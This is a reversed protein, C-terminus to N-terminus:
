SILRIIIPNLLFPSLVHCAFFMVFPVVTYKTPNGGVFFVVFIWALLMVLMALFMGLYRQFIARLERWSDSSDKLEKTTTGWTMRLGLFFKSVAVFLHWPLGGWFLAMLPIMKVEKWFFTWFNATNEPSLRSKCVATCFTGFGAFIVITTLLIDLASVVKLDKATDPFFVWLIISFWLGWVGFAMAFYSGLYSTMSIKSWWPINKSFLFKRYLPTLPGSIFWKIFPNFMMECAGYAYKQLRLIEDYNTLSIGEKFEPGTHTVYRGIFGFQQLRFSLDFDESVHRESWYCTYGQEEEQEPTNPNATSNKKKKFDPDKFSVKEMSSFRLFVNHGMLPALDGGSTSFRVGLQYINDTFDGILEEWFNHQRRMATTLCQVYSVNEDNFEGMAKYICDEPVETDSDVLFIMEGISIDGGAFFEGGRRQNENLIAQELTINSKLCEKMCNLSVNLCYNMNSAKKFMGKRKIKSNPPRGVFGVDFSQYFFLRLSREEESIVQLGDDNVFLNVQGGMRKYYHAARLLSLISPVITQELSETFVPLQITVKPLRTPPTAISSYYVSNQFLHGIGGWSNRISILVFHVGFLMFLTFMPISILSICRYWNDDELSQFIFSSIWLLNAYTVGIFYIATIIPIDYRRTRPPVTNRAKEQQAKLTLNYNIIKQYQAEMLDSSMKGDPGTVVPPQFIATVPQTQAQKQHSLMLFSTEGEEEEPIIGPLNGPYQGSNQFTQSHVFPTRNKMSAGNVQLNIPPRNNMNM